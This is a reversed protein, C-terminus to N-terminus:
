RGRFSCEVGSPNAEAIDAGTLDADLFRAWSMDAMALRAGSLDAGQFSAGSLNAGELLAGSAKADQLIAGSLNTRLLNTGSLNVNHLNRRSLDADQLLAGSLNASWLGTRTFDVNYFQAGSLDSYILFSDTLDTNAFNAGSLNSNYFMANSLDADLFQATPLDAGRMDLRFDATRELTVLSKDRSGIMQLVAEVDQRIGLPTGPEIEAQGSVLSQDRTPLRVFACFLRMIQIHYQDPWEEALRQLAYIGGLRVSLVESGLMEAGKQYRENLLGQQATNAQRNAVVGRWIALPLAIPDAAVLAINRITTSGSEGSSLWEWFVLPLVVTAMAACFGGAVILQRPNRFARLWGFLNM